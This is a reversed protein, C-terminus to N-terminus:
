HLKVGLVAVGVLAKSDAVWFNIATEGQKTFHLSSTRYDKLDGSSAGHIAYLIKCGTFSSPLVMTARCNRPSATVDDYYEVIVLDYDSFKRGDYTSYPTAIDTVNRATLLSQVGFRGVSSQLASVNSNLTNLVEAITIPEANSSTISEGSAIATKARHLTNELMFYTGASHNSTAPNTEFDAINDSIEEAFGDIIDLNSNNHGRWSLVSEDGDDKALNLKSTHSQAM